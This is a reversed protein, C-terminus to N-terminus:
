GVGDNTGIEVRITEGGDVMSLVFPQADSAFYTMAVRVVM